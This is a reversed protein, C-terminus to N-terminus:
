DLPENQTNVNRCDITQIINSKPTIGEVDSMLLLDPFGTGIDLWTRFPAKAVVTGKVLLGVALQQKLRELEFQATSGERPPLVGKRGRRM